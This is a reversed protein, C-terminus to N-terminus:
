KIDLRRNTPIHVRRNWYLIAESSYHWWCTQMGCCLCKIQYGFPQRAVSNPYRDYYNQGVFISESRTLEARGKCHACKKIKTPM